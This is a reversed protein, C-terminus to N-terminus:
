RSREYAMRVAEGIVNPNRQGGVKSRFKEVADVEDEKATRVAMSKDVTETSIEDVTSKVAQMDAVIPDIVDKKFAEFAATVATVIRDTDGPTENSESKAVVITPDSTVEEKSKDGGMMRRIEVLQDELKGVLERLDRAEETYYISKETSDSGAQPDTGATQQVEATSAAEAAAGDNNDANDANGVNAASSQTDTTTESDQAAVDAQEQEQVKEGEIENLQVAQEDSLPGDAAQEKLADQTSETKEVPAIMDNEQTVEQSPAPVDDWNVSKYLAEVYATPFAPSGVVSIERLAVDQIERISKKTSEDWVRVAKKITGGVSFGLEVPRGHQQPTTLVKYLDQAASTDALEAEIWLNNNSDIEAKSVWGLIDDWEKRHGSRLPIMTFKGNPLYFGEEIAKVFADIASKAMREGDYDLDTGSAIGGIFRVTRGDVDKEYSKEIPMTLKFDGSGPQPKNSTM